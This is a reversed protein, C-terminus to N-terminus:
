LYRVLGRTEDKETVITFECEDPRLKTIDILSPSMSRDYPQIRETSVDPEGQASASVIVRADAIGQVASQAVGALLEEQAQM